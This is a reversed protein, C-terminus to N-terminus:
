EKKADDSLTMIIGDCDVDLKVGEIRRGTILTMADDIKLMMKEPEIQNILVYGEVATFHVIM